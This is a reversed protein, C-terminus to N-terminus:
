GQPQQPTMEGKAARMAAELDAKLSFDSMVTGQTDYATITAEGVLKQLNRAFAQGEVAKTMEKRMKADLPPMIAKDRQRRKIFVYNSDFQIPTSRVGEDVLSQVVKLMAPRMQGDPIPQEFFGRSKRLPEEINFEAAVAEFSNKAALKAKVANAKELTDVVILSLHYVYKNEKEFKAKARNYETKIAEDTVAASAAKQLLYNRLFENIVNALEEKYKPDNQVTCANKDTYNKLVADLVQQKLAITYAVEWPQNSLKTSGALVKMVSDRSVSVTKDKFKVTAAPKDACVPAANLCSSNLMFATSCLVLTMNFFKTNMINDENM